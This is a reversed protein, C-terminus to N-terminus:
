NEKNAAASDANYSCCGGCGACDCGCASGKKKDKVLKKIILVVMIILLASVIITGINAKLFGIM